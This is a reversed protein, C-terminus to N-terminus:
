RVSRSHLGRGIDFVVVAATSGSVPSNLMSVSNLGRTRLQPALELVAHGIQFRGHDIESQWVEEIVQDRDDLERHLRGDRVRKRGAGYCRPRDAGTQDIDAFVKWNCDFCQNGTFRCLPVLTPTM